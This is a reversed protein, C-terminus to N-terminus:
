VFEAMITDIVLQGAPYTAMVIEFHGVDPVPILTADDGLKSAAQDVLAALMNVGLSTNGTQLVAIKTAALDIATHHEDELGTTGILIPRNAAVCHDLTTQLAVPSSFDVLADSTAVLAAIDDGQDVGGALHQDAEAIADALTQGMRGNSGIIGIATM